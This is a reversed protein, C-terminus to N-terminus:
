HETFRSVSRGTFLKAKTLLMWRKEFKGAALDCNCMGTAAEGAQHGSHTFHPSGLAHGAEGLVDGSYSERKRLWSVQTLSLGEDWLNM